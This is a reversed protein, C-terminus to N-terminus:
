VQQVDSLLSTDEGTRGFESDSSNRIDEPAYPETRPNSSGVGDYRGGPFMAAPRWGEEATHGYGESESIIGVHWDTDAVNTASYNTSNSAGAPARVGYIIKFNGLERAIEDGIFM